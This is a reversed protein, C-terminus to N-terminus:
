MAALPFHFTSVAPTPAVEIKSGKPCTGAIATVASPDFTRIRPSAAVATLNAIFIKCRHVCRLSVYSVSLGAIRALYRRM